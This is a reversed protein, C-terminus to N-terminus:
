IHMYNTEDYYWGHDIFEKPINKEAIPKKDYFCDPHYVWEPVKLYNKKAWYHTLAAYEVLVDKKVAVSLDPGANICKQKLTWSYTHFDHMFYSIGMLSDAIFDTVTLYAGSKESDVNIQDQVCYGRIYGTGITKRTLMFDTPKPEFYNVTSIDLYVKHTKRFFDYITLVYELATNVLKTEGKFCVLVNLMMKKYLPNENLYLHTDTSINKLLYIGALSNKFQTNIDFYTQNLIPLIKDRLMREGIYYHETADPDCGAEYKTGM